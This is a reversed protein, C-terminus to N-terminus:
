RAPRISSVLSLVNQSLLVELDVAAEQPDVKSVEQPVEAKSVVMSEVVM